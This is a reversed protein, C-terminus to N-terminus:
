YGLLDPPRDTKHGPKEAPKAEAPAPPSPRM